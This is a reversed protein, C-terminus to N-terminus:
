TEACKNNSMFSSNTLKYNPPRFTWPHKYVNKFKWNNNKKLSFFFFCSTSIKNRKLKIKNNEFSFVLKIKNNSPRFTWPHKYVNKFKWYYLLYVLLFPWSNNLYTVHNLLYTMYSFYVQISYNFVDLYHPPPFKTRNIVWQKTTM